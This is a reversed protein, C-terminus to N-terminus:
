LEDLRENLYNIIKSPHVYEEECIKLFIDLGGNGDIYEWCKKTFYLKGYKTTKFM